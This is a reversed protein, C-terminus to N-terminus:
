IGDVWVYGSPGSPDYPTPSNLPGAGLLDTGQMWIRLYANTRRFVATGQGNPSLERENVFLNDAETRAANYRVSLGKVSASNEFTTHGDNYGVNGSWSNKNGHILLTASETGTTGPQLLWEEQNPALQGANSGGNQYVPGRNGVIAITGLNQTTGWYERRNNFIASHAFSCHGIPQNWLPAPNTITTFTHDLPSGKFNPDWLANFPDVASDPTSYDYEADTIKQIPGAEAPSVLVDPDLIKAYLLVSFINGSRDKANTAAETDDNADLVSPVPYSEKHDQAFGVLGQHIARVNAGDKLQWAGRRARALAPLLLGILLAIISIVVLLEVLTFGRKKFNMM